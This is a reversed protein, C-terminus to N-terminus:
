QRGKPKSKSRVTAIKGDHSLKVSVRGWDSYYRDVYEQVQMKLLQRIRKAPKTPASSTM